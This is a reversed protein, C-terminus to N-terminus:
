SSGKPKYVVQYKKKGDEGIITRIYGKKGKKPIARLTYTKKIFKNKDKDYSNKQILKISM